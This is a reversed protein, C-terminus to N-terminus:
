FEAQGRKELVAICEDFIHDLVILRARLGFGM